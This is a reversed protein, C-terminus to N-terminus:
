YSEVYARHTLKAENGASDQALFHLENVGEKRLRIVAYFSGDEYVDVKESDIWLLAGPETRGNIILMPGTQVFDTIELKPPTRDERDRLKQGTVRFSRPESFPGRV